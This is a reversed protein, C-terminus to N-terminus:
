LFREQIESRQACNRQCSSLGDGSLFVVLILGGYVAIFFVVAPDNWSLDGPPGWM